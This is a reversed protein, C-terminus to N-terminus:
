AGSAMCLDREGEASQQLLWGTIKVAVNICITGKLLKVSLIRADGRLDACLSNFLQDRRDLPSAPSHQKKLQGIRLM